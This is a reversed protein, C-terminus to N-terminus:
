PERRGIGSLSEIRLSLLTGDRERHLIKVPLFGLASACWLTTERKTNERERRVVVTDFVGLATEVREDGIGTLIYRKLKGGDAIAYEVSREGRGLDRMLALLYSLKDMVGHPVPLSWPGDPSVHRAVGEGAGEEWDFEISVERAKRGTRQYRYALPRLWEEAHDWESREVIAGNRILTFVGVPETRSEYVYGGDAGPSLFWRTRAITVGKVELAFTAEFREPLGSAPSAPSLAAGSLLLSLVAVGPIRFLFTVYRGAGARRGPVPHATEAEGFWPRAPRPWLGAGRDALRRHLHHTHGHTRVELDIASRFNLLVEDRIPSTPPHTVSRVDIRMAAGGTVEGM